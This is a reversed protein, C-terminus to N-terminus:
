NEDEELNSSVIAPSTRRAWPLEDAHRDCSWVKTWGKTFKWRGIWAVPQMCHTGHGVPNAYIMRWCRGEQAFLGPAVTGVIGNEDTGDYIRYTDV